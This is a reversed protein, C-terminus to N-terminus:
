NKLYCHLNELCSSFRFKVFKLCSVITPIRLLPVLILLVVANVLVWLCSCNFCKFVLIDRLAQILVSDWRVNKTMVSPYIRPRLPYDLIQLHCYFPLVATSRLWPDGFTLIATYHMTHFISTSPTYSSWNVLISDSLLSDATLLHFNVWFSFYQVTLLHFYTMHDPLYLLIM